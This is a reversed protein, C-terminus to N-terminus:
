LSQHYSSFRRFKPNTSSRTSILEDDLVIANDANTFLRLSAEYARDYFSQIRSLSDATEPVVNSFLTISNLINTYTEQSLSSSSRTCERLIGFCTETNVSLLVNILYYGWFSCFESKTKASFTKSMHQRQHKLLRIWTENVVDKLLHEWIVISVAEISKFHSECNRHLKKDLFTDPHIYVIHM